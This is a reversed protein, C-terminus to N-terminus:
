TRQRPLAAAGGLLQRREPSISMHLAKASVCLALDNVDRHCRGCLLM